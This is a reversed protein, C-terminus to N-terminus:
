NNEWYRRTERIVEGVNKVIYALGALIPLLGIFFVAKTFFMFFNALIYIIGMGIFIHIIIRSKQNYIFQYDGRTLPKNHNKM